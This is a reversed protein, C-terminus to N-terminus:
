LLRSAPYVELGNRMILWALHQVQHLIQDTTWPRHEPNVKECGRYEISTEDIAETSGGRPDNQPENSWILEDSKSEISVLLMGPRLDVGSFKLKDVLVNLLAQERFGTNSSYHNDFAELEKVADYRFENISNLSQPSLKMLYNVASGQTHAELVVTSHFIGSAEIRIQKCSSLLSLARTGEDLKIFTDSFTLEYIRNRLEPPLALLPSQSQDAQDEM